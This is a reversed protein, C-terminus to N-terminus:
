KIVTKIIETGIKHQINLFYIGKGLSGVDIREKDNILGSLSVKGTIDILQYPVPGNNKTEVTIYGNAPNPYVRTVAMSTSEVNSAVSSVELEFNDFNVWTGDTGETVIDFGILLNKGETTEPLETEFEYLVYGNEDAETKDWEQTLSDVLEFGTPDDGEYTAFMTAITMGTVDQPWSEQVYFSLSLGRMGTEVTGAKNWISGGDNNYAFGVYRGDPIEGEVKVSERGCDTANADAWWGTLNDDMKTPGGGGSGDASYKVEDDPDEFSGNQIELQSFLMSNLALSFLITFFYNKRM